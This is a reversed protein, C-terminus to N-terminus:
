VGNTKNNFREPFMEALDKVWSGCRKPDLLALRESNRPNASHSIFHPALYIRDKRRYRRFCSSRPRNATTVQGHDPAVGHEDADLLDPRVFVEVEDLVGALTAAVDLADDLCEAAAVRDLRGVQEVAQDGRSGTMGAARDHQGAEVTAFQGFQPPEADAGVEHESPQPLLGPTAIDQATQEGFPVEAEIDLPDDVQGHQMPEHDGARITVSVVPVLAQADGAGLSQGQLLGVLRHGPKTLLGGVVAGHRIGDLLREVAM